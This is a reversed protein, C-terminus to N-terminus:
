DYRVSYKKPIRFLFTQPQNFNYEKFDLQLSMPSDGNVAIDRQASFNITNVLHYDNYFINADIQSSGYASQLRTQGLNFDNKTFSFIYKILADAATIRISDAKFEYNLPTNTHLTPKGIIINQFDNFTFPLKTIQQLHAISSIQATNQIYNIIKVSDNTVLVRAGEINLPGTISLLIVSDKQIKIYVTANGSAQPSNFDAKAKGYFTTFDAPKYLLESLQQKETAFSDVPKMKAAPSQTIVPAAPVSQQATRSTRCSGLLLGLFGLSYVLKHM